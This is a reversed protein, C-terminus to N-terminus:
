RGNEKTIIIYMDWQKETRQLANRDPSKLIHRESEDIENPSRVTGMKYIMAVRGNVRQGKECVEKWGLKNGSERSDKKIAIPDGGYDSYPDDFQVVEGMWTCVGAITAVSM